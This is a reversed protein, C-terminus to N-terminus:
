LLARLAMVDFILASLYILGLGALLAPGVRQRKVPARQELAARCRSRLREARPHDSTLVTLESVRRLVPDDEIM